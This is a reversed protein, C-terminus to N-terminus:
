VDKVGCLQCYKYSENLGRYQAWNHICQKSSLNFDISECIATGDPFRKFYPIVDPPHHGDPVEEFQDSSVFIYNILQSENYGFGLIKSDSPFKSVMDCFLKPDMGKNALMYQLNFPVRVYRM